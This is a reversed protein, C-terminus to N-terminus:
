TKVDVSCASRMGTFNGDTCLHGDCCQTEMHVTDMMTSGGICPYPNSCGVMEALIWNDETVMEKRRMIQIFTSSYLETVTEPVFSSRCHFITKASPDTSM